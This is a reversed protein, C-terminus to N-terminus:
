GYRLLSVPPLSERQCLPGVVEQDLSGLENVRWLLNIERMGEPPSESTSPPRQPQGGTGGGRRLFGLEASPSHDELAWGLTSAMYIQSGRLYKMGSCDHAEAARHHPPLVGATSGTTLSKLLQQPCTTAPWPPPPPSGKEPPRHVVGRCGGKAELLRLDESPAVKGMGWTPTSVALYRLHLSQFPQQAARHLRSSNNSICQRPEWSAQSRALM